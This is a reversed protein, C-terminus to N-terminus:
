VLRGVRRAADLHRGTSAYRTAREDLQVRGNCRVWGGWL